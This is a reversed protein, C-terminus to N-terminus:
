RTRFEKPLDEREIKREVLYIYIDGRYARLITRM